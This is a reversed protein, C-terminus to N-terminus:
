LLIYMTCQVRNRISYASDMKFIVLRNVSVLEVGNLEMSLYQHHLSLTLRITSVTVHMGDIVQVFKSKPRLNQRGKFELFSKKKSNPAFHKSARM